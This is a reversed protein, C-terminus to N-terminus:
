VVISHFVTKLKESTEVLWTFYELWLDENFIDGPRSIKIRSAKKNPLEMWDIKEEFANEFLVKSQHLLHYLDNSNRIYIESAIKKKQSNIILSLGADSSNISLDYWHQARVKRLSFSSSEEAFEKFKQWFALQLSKTESKPQSVSNKLAKAWDNPQSSIVFKPALASNGIQWLKMTIIFFNIASDTHENLWDVAQEHEERM